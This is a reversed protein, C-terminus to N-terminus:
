SITCMYSWAFNLTSQCLMRWWAHLSTLGGRIQVSTLDSSQSALSSACTRAALKLPSQRQPRSSRRPLYVNVFCCWTRRRQANMVSHSPPELVANPPSSHEGYLCVGRARVFRGRFLRYIFHPLAAEFIRTRKILDTHEEQTKEGVSM